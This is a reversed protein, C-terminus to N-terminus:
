SAPPGNEEAIPFNVRVFWEIFGRDMPIRRYRKAPQAEPFNEAAIQLDAL